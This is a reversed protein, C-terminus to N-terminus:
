LLVQAMRVSALKQKCNRVYTVDANENSLYVVVKITHLDEWDQSCNNHFFISCKTIIASQNQFGCKFALCTVVIKDSTQGRFYWM